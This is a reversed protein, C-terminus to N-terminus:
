ADARHLFNRGGLVIQPDPVGIVRDDREAYPLQALLQRIVGLRARMKDNALIATWPAAPQDTAAIVADRAASIAEWRSPAALDVPSLKWHKLPDKKRAFLRKLQMERGIDLWIKFLRIGDDALMKEFTPVQELFHATEQPTCFGMVPEVVARNYWSRDFLVIEGRRPLHAIYRQFYWQGAEAETPKTLAVVRVSRPNLHQVLRHITGGKGAADRGEFVIVIREGTDNVWRQLKLLEIQLARLEKQYHKRKPRDAYPYNGSRYAREDIIAPLAPLDMSFTALAAALRDASGGNKRASDRPAAKKGGDAGKRTAAPPLAADAGDQPAVPAAAQVTTADTASSKAAAPKVAPRNPKKTM